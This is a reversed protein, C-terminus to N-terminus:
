AAVERWRVCRVAHGPGCTGLPPVATDCRGAVFHACRPHFACGSPHLLPSPVEGPIAELRMERDDLVLRPVSALLGATYPMRPTAFIAETPAEEVVRGAYMVAIRDAIEAAVGLNHTIFLVAMGIEAQLAKILELLQAQVTVDLATTPEDAILLAPRCSLAMAIMVRQAMGGSVQHPYSTLRAKPDPIGLRALMDEAAAMAEARRSGQHLMVADAIQDGITYVPNLCSMPEQFVMAIENGRIRRMARGPLRLLDRVEGDKGRFAIEGTIAIDAGRPVLGMIALGTVSKGAGSEGILAVTEGRRVTLSVDQVARAVGQETHFQVCLGRVALLADAEM